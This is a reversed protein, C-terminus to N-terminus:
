IPIDWRIQETEIYQLNDMGADGTEQRLIREFDRIKSQSVTDSLVPILVRDFQSFISYDSLVTPGIDFVICDYIKRMTLGERFWKLDEMEIQRIDQFGSPAAIESPKQEELLAFCSENRSKMCYLFHSGAERDKESATFGEWNVYLSNAYQSCLWRAYMTKGCRGLPSYVALFISTGIEQKTDQAIFQMLNDLLKEANQYRFMYRPLNAYERYKTLVIVPCDACLDAFEDGVLLLSLANTALFQELMKPKSFVFLQVPTAARLNWYEMLANQYATDYDLLGVRYAM